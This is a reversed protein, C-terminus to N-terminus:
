ENILKIESSRVLELLTIEPTTGLRLLPGWSGTGPNVYVWMNGVRHLGQSLKHVFKVVITWPFFQGGHTHGSLLLHFGNKEAEPAIGPRHSLLIKFADEAYKTDLNPALRSVPDPIGAVLVNAENHKIIKGRNVLNITGLNNLVILWENANWYYEHNGPVFFSGYSSKLNGIPAIDQRYERVNGDGIDGTLVVIDSKLANVKKVVKEVYRKRITAGVHLDSIQAIKLGNLKENLDNVPVRVRKIRPGRSANIVGIVLSVVTLIFVYSIPALDGTLFWAVDRVLTFVVLYTLFGMGAYALQIQLPFLKKLPFSIILLFLLALLLWHSWHNGLRLGLYLYAPSLIAAVFFLFRM